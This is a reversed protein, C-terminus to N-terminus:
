MLFGYGILHGTKKKQLFIKLNHKWIEPPVMPQNKIYALLEIPYQSQYSKGFKKKLVLVTPDSISSTCEIDFLPGNINLRYIKISNLFPFEKMTHLSHEEAFNDDLKSLYEFLQPVVSCRQKYSSSAEFSLYFQVNGYKELFYSKEKQELSEFYDNLYSKIKFTKGLPGMYDQGLIEVLEVSFINGSQDHVLLDPEPPEKKKIICM